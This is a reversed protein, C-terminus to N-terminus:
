RPTYLPSYAFTCVSGVTKTFGLFRIAFFAGSHILILLNAFQITVATGGEDGGPVKGM